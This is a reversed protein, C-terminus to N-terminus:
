SLSQINKASTSLIFVIMEELREKLNMTTFKKMIQLLTSRLCTKVIELTKLVDQSRQEGFMFREHIGNKYWIMFFSLCGIVKLMVNNNLIIVKIIFM